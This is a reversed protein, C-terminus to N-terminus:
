VFKVGVLGGVKGKSSFNNVFGRESGKVIGIVGMPGEFVLDLHCLFEKRGQLSHVFGM